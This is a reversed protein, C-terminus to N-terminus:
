LRKALVMYDATESDFKYGQKQFFRLSAINNHKIKAVFSYGPWRSKSEEEAKELILSGIGQTRMSIDIYIDILLDREQHLEIRVQGLAFDDKEAIWIMCKTSALCSEFWEVHDNWPISRSTLIKADLSDSTNVWLFLLELDSEM